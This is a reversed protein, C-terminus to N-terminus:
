KDDKCDCPKRGQECSGRCGRDKGINMLIVLIFLVFVIIAAIKMKTEIIRDISTTGV